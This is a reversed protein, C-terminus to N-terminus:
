EQSVLWMLLEDVDVNPLNELNNQTSADERTRVGVKGYSELVLASEGDWHRLTLDESFKVLSNLDAKSILVLYDEQDEALVELDVFVDKGM